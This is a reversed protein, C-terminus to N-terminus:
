GVQGFGVGVCLLVAKVTDVTDVTNVTGVVGVMLTDVEVMAAHMDAVPEMGVFRHQFLHNNLSLEHINNVLPPPGLAIYLVHVIHFVAGVIHHDYNVVKDLMMVATHGFYYNGLIGPGM